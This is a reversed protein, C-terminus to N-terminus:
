NVENSLKPGLFLSEEPSRDLLVYRVGALPAVRARHVALRSRLALLAAEIFAQSHAHSRVRHEAFALPDDLALYPLLVANVPGEVFQGCRGCCGDVPRCPIGTRRLRCSGSKM